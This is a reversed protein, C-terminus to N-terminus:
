IPFPDLTGSSQRPLLTPNAIILSNVKITPMTKKCNLCLVNNGVVTLARIDSFGCNSCCNLGKSVEAIRKRKYVRYEGGRGLSKQQDKRATAACNLCYSKLGDHSKRSIGWEEIPKETNCKPCKKM